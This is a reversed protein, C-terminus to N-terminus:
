GLIERVVRDFRAVRRDDAGVIAVVWARVDDIDLEGATALLMQEIDLWDKKRDFVVKCVMLDEPALVAIMVDGFEVNRRRMEANVHFKDEAFFLDIATENWFLRVQADRKVRAHAAANAQVGLPSLARAVSAFESPLVFINVDIDVTARPVGYYALALAGGFAYEIQEQVLKEAVAAIKDGLALPADSV